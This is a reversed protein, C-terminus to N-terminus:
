NNVYKKLNPIFFKLIFDRMNGDTIKLINKGYRKTLFKDHSVNSSIEFRDTYARIEISAYFNGKDKLTTRDAPQGKAIKYRITTRKYGELKRGDGDIGQDYLQSEIVYEKLEISNEDITKRINEFLTAEFSDLFALQRGFMTM